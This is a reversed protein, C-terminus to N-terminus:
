LFRSSELYPFQPGSHACAKGLTVCCSCGHREKGLGEKQGMTCLQETTGLVKCGWPSYDALSRQGHPNELCSCQLPNGHGGGPSRGLGPILGLDGANCASEEGDSGGPFGLFVLTPLRDRKGPSRGSEPISSPDGTSCVSEEGASGCPLLNFIAM